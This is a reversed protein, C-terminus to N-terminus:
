VVTAETHWWVRPLVVIFARVVVERSANETDYSRIGNVLLYNPKALLTYGDVRVSSISPDCTM